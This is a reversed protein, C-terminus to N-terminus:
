KFYRGLLPMKAVIKFMDMMLNIIYFLLEFCVNKVSYDNVKLYLESSATVKKLFHYYTRICQENLWQDSSDHPEDVFQEVVDYFNNNYILLLHALTLRRMLKFGNQSKKTM